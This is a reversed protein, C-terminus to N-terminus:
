LVKVTNSLLGLESIECTVIDGDALESIGEPTGTCIIDGINLTLIESAFAILRPINFIMQSTNSNQKVVGNIKLTLDLNHPDSIADAPLLYPGVPCFTDYSKSRFWPHSKDLDDFQMKRASIDNIITYGAVYDMAKDEPINKGMKGIVVGLEIEHDVRGIKKPFEIVGKHPLLTNPTKTFIIPEDPIPNDGEKAHSAYNVGYCLIKACAELPTDFEVTNSIGFTDLSKSNEAQQVVDSIYAANFSNNKIMEILSTFSNKSDMKSFNYFTGEKELGIERNEDKTKYQFLRM